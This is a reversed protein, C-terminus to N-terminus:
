TNPRYPLLDHSFLGPIESVLHFDDVETFRLARGPERHLMGTAAVMRRETNAEGAIHYDADNLDITINRAKDLDLTRLTIRGLEEDEGRDLRKVYGVVTQRGIIPEGRLVSGIHRLLTAAESDLGVTSSTPPTPLREAWTISVNLSSISEAELTNAIAECLESSVGAGVAETIQSAKPATAGHTLDRLASLGESLKLMASRAFPQYAVDTFLVADDANEPQLIPLRSIVPIVYSGHRTQGMRVGNAHDRAADPLSHGYYSRPQLASNASAQISRRVSDILTSADGLPLSDDIQGSARFEAIDSGAKAVALLVGATDTRFSEALRNLMESWRLSFDPARTVLPVVVGTAHNQWRQAVEGLSATQKWGHFRLWETVDVPMLTQAGLNATDTM